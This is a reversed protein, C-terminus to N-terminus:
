FIPAERYTGFVEQLAAIIEGETVEARACDLLIPMLNRDEQAAAEKLEALRQEVPAGDRRARITAVREIQKRELAQDIHLIKIPEEEGEVYDNVGVV